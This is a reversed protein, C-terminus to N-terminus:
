NLPIENKRDKALKWLICLNNVQGKWIADFSTSLNQFDTAGFSHYLYSMVKVTHSEIALVSEFKPCHWRAM